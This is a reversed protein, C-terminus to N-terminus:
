CAFPFILRVFLSTNVRSMEDGKTRLIRLTGVRYEGVTTGMELWTEATGSSVCVQRRQVVCLFPDSRVLDQKSRTQQMSFRPVIVPGHSNCRSRTKRSLVKM